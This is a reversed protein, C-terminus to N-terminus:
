PRSEPGPRSAPKSNRWGNGDKRHRSVFLTWNSMIARGSLGGEKLAVPPEEEVAREILDAVAPLLIMERGLTGLLEVPHGVVRARLGPLASLSSGMARLDRGNGSGASLRAVLRELDRIGAFEDRVERLLTRDRTLGEVADLRQEIRRVDALPRLIWDRMMRAGMPTRTEDLTGLLTVSGRREESRRPMLDLNACTAQDIMMYEAPNSVRLSRVHRVDRKLDEQVYHLIGGAAGVAASETATTIGLL